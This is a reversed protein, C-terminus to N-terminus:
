YESHYYSVECNVGVPCGNVYRVNIYWVRTNDVKCEYGSGTLSWYYAGTAAGNIGGCPFVTGGRGSVIASEASRYYTMDGPCKSIAWEVTMETPTGPRDGQQLFGSNYIGNAGKPLPYSYVVGLAGAHVASSNPNALSSRAQYTSGVPPTLGSCESPPQTPSPTPSPTPTPPQTPPPTGGTDQLTISDTCSLEIQGSSTVTIQGTSNCYADKNGGKLKIQQAYSPFTLVTAACSTAAIALTRYKEILHKM